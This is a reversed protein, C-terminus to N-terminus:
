GQLSKRLLVTILAPDDLHEAVALADDPDLQAVVAAILADSDPVGKAIKLQRAARQQSDTPQVATDASLTRARKAKVEAYFFHPPPLRKAVDRNDNYWGERGKKDLSLYEDRWERRRAAKHAKDRSRCYEDASTEDLCLEELNFRLRVRNIARISYEAVGNGIFFYNEEFEHFWNQETPINSKIDEYASIVLKEESEELNFAYVGDKLEYIRM